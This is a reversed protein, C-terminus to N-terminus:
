KQSFILTNNKYSSKLNFVKGLTNQVETVTPNHFKGSFKQNEYGTPIQIDIKLYKELHAIVEHLNTNNFTFDGTAWATQNTNLLTKSTITNKNTFYTAENGKAVKIKKNNNGFEVLGSIVQLNTANDKNRINFSTGLVKASIGNNINVIFPISGKKVKFFAEEGKLEVIRDNKGFRKSITVSTNKNLWIQSSDPLIIHNNNVSYEYTTTKSPITVILGLILIISAAISAVTRYLTRIKTKSHQEKLQKFKEWEANENITLKYANPTTSDWINSLNDFIAKNESNQLWESLYQKDKDSLLEGSLKNSIINYINNEM